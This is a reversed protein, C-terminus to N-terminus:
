NLVLVIIDSYISYYIVIFSIWCLMNVLNFGDIMTFIICINISIYNISLFNVYIYVYTTCFTM